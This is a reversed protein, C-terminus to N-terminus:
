DPQVPDKKKPPIIIIPEYGSGEGEGGRIHFMGASDLIQHKKLGSILTVFNRKGATSKNTSKM